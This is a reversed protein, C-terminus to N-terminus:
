RIRIIFEKSGIQLKYNPWPGTPNLDKSKIHSGSPHRRTMPVYPKHDQVPVPVSGWDKRDGHVLLEHALVSM